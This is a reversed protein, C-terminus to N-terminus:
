LPKTWPSSNSCAEGSGDRDREFEVASQDQGAIGGTWIVFTVTSLTVDIPAIFGLIALHRERQRGVPPAIEEWHSRFRPGYLRTTSSRNIREAVRSGLAGTKESLVGEDVNELYRVSRTKGCGTPRASVM